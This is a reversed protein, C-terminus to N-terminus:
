LFSQSKFDCDKKAGAGGTRWKLPEGLSATLIAPKSQPLSPCASAEISYRIARRKGVHRNRTQVWGTLVGYLIFTGSMGIIEQKRPEDYVGFGVTHAERETLKGVHRGNGYM